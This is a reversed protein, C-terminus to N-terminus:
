NDHCQIAKMLRSLAEAYAKESLRLDFESNSGAQNDLSKFLVARYIIPLYFLINRPVPKEKSKETKLLIQSYDIPNGHLFQNRAQYLKEYLYGAFTTSICKNRGYRVSYNHLNLENVCWDVSNVVEIM